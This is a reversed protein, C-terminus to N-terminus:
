EGERGALFSQAKTYMHRSLIEGVAIEAQGIYDANVLDATMLHRLYEVSSGHERVLRLHARWLADLALGFEKRVDGPMLKLPCHDKDPGRKAM